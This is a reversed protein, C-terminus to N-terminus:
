PETSRHPVPAAVGDLLIKTEACGEVSVTALGDYGPPPVYTLGRLREALRDSSGSAELVPAADGSDWRLAGHSARLSLSLVDSDPDTMSIPLPEEGRVELMAPADIIPANNVNKITVPIVVTANRPGGVGSYGLDDVTCRITADGGRGKSPAAYVLPQLAKQVFQQPGRFAVGDEINRFRLGAKSSVDLRGGACVVDLQGAYDEDVDADSVDINLDFREGEDVEVKLGVYSISPPQNPTKTTAYRPLEDAALAVAVFAALRMM